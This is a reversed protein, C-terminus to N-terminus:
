LMPAFSGMARELPWGYRNLRQHMTAPAIGAIEALQALTYSGGNWEIRRAKAVNREAAMTAATEKQLCGCSKVDESKLRHAFVDVSGGCDCACHYKCRAEPVKFKVVLKGFRQGVLNEITPVKVSSGAETLLRQTRSDYRCRKDGCTANYRKLAGDPLLLPSRPKGCSCLPPNLPRRFQSRRADKCEKNGCTALYSRRADKSRPNGCIPCPPATGTGKNSPSRGRVGQFGSQWRRVMQERRAEKIEPRNQIEKQSNSRKLNKGTPTLDRKGYRSKAQPDFNYGIERRYSEAVDIWEQERELVISPDAVVELVEFVFNAEGDRNWAHQLHRNAKNRRLDNHWQWWRTRFSRTTSGVYIKGDLLNRIQYVGFSDLNSEKGVTRLM